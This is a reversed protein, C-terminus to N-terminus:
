TELATKPLIVSGVHLLHTYTQGLIQYGIRREIWGM